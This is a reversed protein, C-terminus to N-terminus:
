SAGSSSRTTSRTRSTCTVTALHAEGGEDEVKKRWDWLSTGNASGSSSGTAMGRKLVLHPHKRIGSIQHLVVEENGERYEIIGQESDLGSVESFSGTITEGDVEVSFNFVGYPTSRDAM